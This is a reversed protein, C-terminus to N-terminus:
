GCRGITQWNKCRRVKLNNGFWASGYIVVVLPCKAQPKEHLYIDVNHYVMTYGGYNVDKWSKENQQAFCNMCLFSLISVTGLKKFARKGINTIKIDIFKRCINRVFHIFRGNEYLKM